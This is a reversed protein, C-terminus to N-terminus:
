PWFTECAYAMHKQLIINWQSGGLRDNLRKRQRVCCAKSSSWSVPLSADGVRM